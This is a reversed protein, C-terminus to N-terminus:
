EHDRKHFGARPICVKLLGNELQASYRSSDLGAPLVITRKMLGKCRERFYVKGREEARRYKGEITLIRGALSVAVENKSLGPLDVWVVVQDEQEIMDAPLLYGFQREDPCDDLIRKLNAEYIPDQSEEISGAEFPRFYQAHGM